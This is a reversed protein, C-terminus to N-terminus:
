RQFIIKNSWIHYRITTLTCCLAFVPFPSSTLFLHTPSLVFPKNFYHPLFYCITVYCPSRFLFSYIFYPLSSNSNQEALSVRMKFSTQKYFMQELHLHITFCFQLCMCLNLQLNTSFLISCLLDKSSLGYLCHYGDIWYTVGWVKGIRKLEGGKQDYSTSAVFLDTKGLVSIDYKFLLHSPSLKIEANNFMRHHATTNFIQKIWSHARKWIRGSAHLSHIFPLSTM